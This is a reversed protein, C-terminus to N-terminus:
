ITTGGHHKVAKSKRKMKHKAIPVFTGVLENNALLVSGCARSMWTQMATWDWKALVKSMEVYNGNKYHLKLQQTNGEEECFDNECIIDWTLVAHNSKGM